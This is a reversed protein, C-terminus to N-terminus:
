SRGARAFFLSLDQTRGVCVRRLTRHGDVGVDPRGHQVAHNDWIVLDGVSWRHVYTHRPQYLHAYLTEVLAESEDPDLPLIADTHQEWVGLIAEGTDRHPWLVPRATHPHSDDLRGVRIRVASQGATSAVDIAQRASLGELRARLEPPLTRAALVANVFWTETGTAPLDVGYLSIFPYPHEFFGYDIHYAAASSGLIGDARFNSVFTVARPSGPAGELAIPGFQEAVAVHQEDGLGQAPFVLLFRHRMTDRLREWVEPPQPSRLDLDRVTAGLAPSAREILM